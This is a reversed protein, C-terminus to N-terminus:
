CVKIHTDVPKTLIIIYDTYVLLSGESILDMLINAIIRQFYTPNTKLGFPLVNFVFIGRKPDTSATYEKSEETVVINWFGDNLSVRFFYQM